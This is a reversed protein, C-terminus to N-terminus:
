GKWVESVAQRKVAFTYDLCNTLLTNGGDHWRTFEPEESCSLCHGADPHKNFFQEIAEDDHPENGTSDGNILTSAWHAPLKYTVTKM